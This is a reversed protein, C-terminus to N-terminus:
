QSPKESGFSDPDEGAASLMPVSKQTGGIQPGSKRTKSVDRLNHDREERAGATELEHSDTFAECWAMGVDDGM